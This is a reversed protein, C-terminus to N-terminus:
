PMGKTYHVAIYGVAYETNSLLLRATTSVVLVLIIFNHNFLSFALSCGGLLVRKYVILVHLAVRLTGRCCRAVVVVCV